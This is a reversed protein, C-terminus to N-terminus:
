KAEEQTEELSGEQTNEQPDQLSPLEAGKMESLGKGTISVLRVDLAEEIMMTRRSKSLSKMSDTDEKSLGLYRRLLLLMEEEMQSYIEETREPNAIYRRDQQIQEYFSNVNKSLNEANYMYRTDQSCFAVEAIGKYISRYYSAGYIIYRYDEFDKNYDLQHKDCFAALETYDRNALYEEIQEVYADHKKAAARKERRENISYSNLGTAMAILVIILAVIVALRVGVATGGGGAVSIRDMAQRRTQEFEEEYQEMEKQHRIAQEVARGCHPCFHDDLKVDAGCYKCKM